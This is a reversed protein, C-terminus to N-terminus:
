VCSVECKRVFFFLIYIYLIYIESINLFLTPQAFTGQTGEDLPLSGLPPRGAPSSSHKRRAQRDLAAAAM